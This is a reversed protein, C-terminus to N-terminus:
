SQFSFVSIRGEKLKLEGQVEQGVLMKAPLESSDSKTPFLIHRCGLGKIQSYDNGSASCCELVKNIFDVIVGKIGPNL